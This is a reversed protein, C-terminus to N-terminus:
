AAMRVRCKLFERGFAIKQGRLNRFQVGRKTRLLFPVAIQHFRPGPTDSIEQAPDAMKGWCHFATSSAIVEGHPVSRRPMLLIAVMGTFPFKLLNYKIRKSVSDDTSPGAVMDSVPGM